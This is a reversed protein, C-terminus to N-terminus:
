IQFAKLRRLQVDLHAGGHQHTIEDLQHQLMHGAPHLVSVVVTVFALLVVVRQM